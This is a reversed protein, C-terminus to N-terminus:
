VPALGPIHYDNYQSQELTKKLPFYPGTKLTSKQSNKKDAFPGEINLIDINAGECM